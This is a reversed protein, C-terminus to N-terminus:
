KEVGIDEFVSVIREVCEFDSLNDNEIITKIKKLAKYSEIEVAETASLKLNPFNINIEEAMLVKILIEEFLKM